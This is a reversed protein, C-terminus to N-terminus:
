AITRASRPAPSFFSPLHPAAPLVAPFFWVGRVCAWLSVMASGVGADVAAAFPKFYLQKAARNGVNSSMGSRDTEENNFTYHRSSALPSFLALSPTFSVDCCGGSGAVGM